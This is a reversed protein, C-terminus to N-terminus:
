SCYYLNTGIDVDGFEPLFSESLILQNLKGWDAFFNLYGSPHSESKSVLTYYM